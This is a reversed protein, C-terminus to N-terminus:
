FMKQVHRRKVVFISRRWFCICFPFCFREVFSCKRCFLRSLQKITAVFCLAFDQCLSVFIRLKIVITVCVYESVYLCFFVIAISPATIKLLGQGQRRELCFPRIFTLEEREISPKHIGYIDIIQNHNQTEILLTQYHSKFLKRNSIVSVNGFASTMVTSYENMIEELSVSSWWLRVQGPQASMTLFYTHTRLVRSGM